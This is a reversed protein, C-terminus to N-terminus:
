FIDLTFQNFVGNYHCSIFEKNRIGVNKKNSQNVLSKTNLFLYYEYTPITPYIM